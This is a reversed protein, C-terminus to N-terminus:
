GRFMEFRNQTIDAGDTPLFDAFFCGGPLFFGATFCVFGVLGLHVSFPFLAVLDVTFFQAFLFFDLLLLIADLRFLFSLLSLELSLLFILVPSSSLFDIVLPASFPLAHALLLTCEIILPLSLALLSILSSLSLVSVSVSIIIAIATSGSISIM